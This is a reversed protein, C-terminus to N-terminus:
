REAGSVSRLIAPGDLLGVAAERRLVKPLMSRVVYGLRVRLGSRRMLAVFRVWRRGHGTLVAFYLSWVDRRWSLSSVLHRLAPHRGRRNVSPGHEARLMAFERRLTEAQTERLTEGHDVQVALV